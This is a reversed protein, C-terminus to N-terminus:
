TAEALEWLVGGCSKPHLFAVQMGRSGPRPASDILQVGQQRYFELAKVIDPVRFCLHHLGQGRNTLFKAIASDPSRPALLEITQDGVSIFAVDVKHSPVSELELRKAAFTREYLELAAHLDQVAIGIHDLSLIPPHIM